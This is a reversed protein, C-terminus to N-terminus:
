QAYGSVEGCIHSPKQEIKNKKVIYDQVLAQIISKYHLKAACYFGPIYQEKSTELLKGPEKPL